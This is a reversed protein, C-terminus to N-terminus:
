MNGESNKKFRFMRKTESIASNNNLAIPSNNAAPVTRHVPAVFVTQAVPVLQAITLPVGLVGGPAASSTCIPVTAVNVFSGMMPVAVVIM